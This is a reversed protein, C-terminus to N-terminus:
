TSARKLGVAWHSAIVAPVADGDVRYISGRWRIEDRRGVQERCVMWVDGAALMGAPTQREGVQGITNRGFFATITQERYYFASGFSPSAGAVGSVFKRWTATQGAQQMIETTQLQHRKHDVGRYSM